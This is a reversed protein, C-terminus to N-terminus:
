HNYFISNIGLFAGLGQKSIKVVKKKEMRKRALVVGCM